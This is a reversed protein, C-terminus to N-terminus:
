FQPRPVIHVSDDDDDDMSWEDASKVLNRAPKVAAILWVRECLCRLRLTLEHTETNTHRIAPSFSNNLLEVMAAVVVVVEYNGTFRACSAWVTLRERSALEAYSDGTCRSRFPESDHFLSVPAPCRTHHDVSSSKFLMGLSCLTQRHALLDGRENTLKNRSLREHRSSFLLTQFKHPRVLISREFRSDQTFMTRVAAM